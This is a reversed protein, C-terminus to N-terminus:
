FFLQFRLWFLDSYREFGGPRNAVPQGFAAHQWDLYIKTYFNLYWNVGVDIASAQNTWANQDALGATFINKGINLYSYSAHLEIAGTGTIKGNRVRFDHLPKVVNVRRTLREGTLFFSPEIVFGEFPVRTSVTERGHAYSGFGGGYETLLSFSKIFWVAHGSWQAREGLEVVNQNFTLFTPSLTAASASPTQDNATRFASPQAPNQEYGFNFSGGLNLYELPRPDAPEPRNSGIAQNPRTRGGTGQAGGSGAESSPNLFPRTNLFTYVDKSNNFDEFSRRPGNFVGLAYGMRDELLEGLFMAGIQRNGALNGAYLSREPAILDGEAIQYYEYLYPTKMRGVRLRLRPDYRFTLFADLLDVTGYGRNIVTYYEINKSVRGTFYWRQRPIFFGSHLPRQNGQTFDRYDVQTLNHFQLKFEDDPSAFELGEAFEVLARRRPIKEAGRSNSEPEFVRADTGQAGVGRSGRPSLGAGATGSPANNGRAETQARSAKPAPADAERRPLTPADLRKSLDAYRRTLVENQEVLRRNAEELRQLREEVTVERPALTPVASPVAPAAAPTADPASQALTQSCRSGAALGLLLALWPPAVLTRLTM